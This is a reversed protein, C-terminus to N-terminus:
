YEELRIPTAKYLIEDDLAKKHGVTITPMEFTGTKYECDYDDWYEVPVTDHMAFISKISQHEELTRQRIAFGIIAQTTEHCVEHSIGNGDKYEHAVRKQKLFSYSGSAVLM